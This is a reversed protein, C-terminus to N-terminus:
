HDGTTAFPKILSPDKSAMMNKLNKIEETSFRGLGGDIFKGKGDWMSLHITSSWSENLSFLDLETRSGDNHRLVISYSPAPPSILVMQWRSPYSQLWTFLQDLQERTLDWTVTKKGKEVVTFQGLFLGGDIVTGSVFPSIERCGVLVSLAVMISLALRTSRTRQGANQTLTLSNRDM